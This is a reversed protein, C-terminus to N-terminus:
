EEGCVPITGSVETVEIQMESQLLRKEEESHCLNTDLRYAGNDFKTQIRDTKGALYLMYSLSNLKCHYDNPNNYFYKEWTDNDEMSVQIKATIDGADEVRGYMDIAIDPVGEPIESVEYDGHEKYQEAYEAKLALVWRFYGDDTDYTVIEFYEQWNDITIEVPVPAKAEPETSGQTQSSPDSGAAETTSATNTAETVAKTTTQATAGTTSRTAATTEPAPAAGGCAALALVLTLLLATM